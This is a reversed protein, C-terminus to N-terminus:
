LRLCGNLFPNILVRRNRHLPPQKIQQWFISSCCPRWTEVKRRSSYRFNWRHLRVTPPPSCRPSGPPACPTLQQWYQDSLRRRRLVLRLLASTSRTRAGKVLSSVIGIQDRLTCLAMNWTWTLSAGLVSEPSWTKPVKVNGQQKM